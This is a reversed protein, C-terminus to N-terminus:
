MRHPLIFWSRRRTQVPWPYRRPRDGPRHVVMRLPNSATWSRDVRVGVIIRLLHECLSSSLSLSSLVGGGGGSNTTHDNDERRATACRPPKMDKEKKQVCFFIKKKNQFSRFNLFELKSTARTSSALSINRAWRVDIRMSTFFPFFFFRLSTM